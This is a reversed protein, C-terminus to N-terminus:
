HANTRFLTEYNNLISLNIDFLYLCQKALFKSKKDIINTNISKSFNM